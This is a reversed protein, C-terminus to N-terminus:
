DDVLQLPHGANFSGLGVHGDLISTRKPTAAVTLLQRGTVWTVPSYSGSAVM